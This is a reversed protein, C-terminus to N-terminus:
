ACCRSKANFQFPQVLVLLTLRLFNQWILKVRVLDINANRLSNHRVLSKMVRLIQVLIESAAFALIPPAILKAISISFSPESKQYQRVTCCGLDCSSIGLSSRTALQFGAQDALSTAFYRVSIFFKSLRQFDISTPVEPENVEVSPPDFIVKLPELRWSILM